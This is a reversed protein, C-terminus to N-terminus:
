DNLLEMMDQFEPTYKVWGDKGFEFGMPLEDGEFVLLHIHTEPGITALRKVHFSTTRGDYVLDEQYLTVTWLTKMMDVCMDIKKIKPVMMGNLFVTTYDSTRLGSPHKIEQKM